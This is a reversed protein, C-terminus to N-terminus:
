EKPQGFAIVRNLLFQVAAVVVISCLKVLFPDQELLTGALLLLQSIFLGLLGAAYFLALRWWIHDGMRFTFTRNLFFSCLIGCHISIINVSYPTAHSHHSLLYFIGADLGSSLAGIIGYSVVQQFLVHKGKQNKRHEM